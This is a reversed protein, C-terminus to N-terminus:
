GKLAVGVLVERLRVAAAEVGGVDAKGAASRLARIGDDVKGVGAPDLAGVTRDRVVGLSALDGDVGARDGAAVDVVAARAWVDMRDVDVRAVSRYPLEADTAALAADV